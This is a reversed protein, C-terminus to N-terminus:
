DDIGNKDLAEYFIDQLYPATQVNVGNQDAILAAARTAETRTLDDGPYDNIASRVANFIIKREESKKV